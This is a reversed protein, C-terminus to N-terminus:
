DMNWCSSKMMITLEDFGTVEFLKCFLQLFYVNM